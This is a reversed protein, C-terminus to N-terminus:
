ANAARQQALHRLTLDGTVSSSSNKPMEAALQDANSLKGSTPAQSPLYCSVRTGGTQPSDIELRGGMLQARYKMIHYGLGQQLNLDKPFGIGDDIVRVVMEKRARELRVVIQRAQAHKNANIVAERAIRYLHAAAADDNIQFSPKIELRCPTRWIERDALDQLAVVLAAADVDVRHLARSLNRTDIAAKNILEAVKEIDAADVVRHDRLRLAISRTMFAVATLHQCLGDHLEQGLRQQERDSVSLIEGELGKRRNMESQLKKNSRNLELTRARVRMELLQKSRRLAAEAKKRGTIDVIVSVTSQTKGDPGSVASASVDAWLISGDKRIYRKEIEYPKGGHIMRAFRRLNEKADDPHTLEALSKGLLDSRTYGLMQCLTQNAFVLQGDVDWRAMGATAQEVTARMRAESERLAEEDRKHQIAQTIQRAITTALRLENETFSHPANLYIMFKGILKGDGVLPIFAAAHIGEARIVAKLSKALKATGIDSICVPAPNKTDPKWPSHGEVAKCYRKSIDRSAVFRMVQKEDLLLISARDCGAAALITDLAAQYIEQLSAASSQRQAFRYLAEEQQQALKRETIDNNTELVYARKGQSDRDLAWRSFVTIRTGDRRTHILEGQWQNDRLLKQYIRSLPEAHETNLLDHSVEGIAEQLTYGYVKTAGKNWYTIRDDVDRVIIADNSLDLLRAQETLQQEHRKRQSLDIIATQYLLAGNRTTSTIPTSLLQVPVREGKRAKLELETAVQEHRTRCHLLHHLFLDLDAVYFAFPRGILSDRAVGLLATTALNAEEIRGARDFSVYAIPAFDYLDVFRQTAAELETQPNWRVPTRGSRISAGNKNLRPIRPRFAISENQSGDNGQRPPMIAGNGSGIGQRVRRARQKNNGRHAM